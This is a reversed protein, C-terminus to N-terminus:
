EKNKNTSAMPLKHNIDFLVAAERFYRNLFVGLKSELRKEEGIDNSFLHFHIKGSMWLNHVKEGNERLANLM